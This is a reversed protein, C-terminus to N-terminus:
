FRYITYHLTLIFIVLLLVCKFIYEIFLIASLMVHM